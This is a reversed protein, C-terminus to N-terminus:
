QWDLSICIIHRRSRLVTRARDSRNLRCTDPNLGLHSQIIQTLLLTYAKILNKLFMLTNAM